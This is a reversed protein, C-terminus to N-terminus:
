KALLKVNESRREKIEKAQVETLKSNYRQEGRRRTGHTLEDASNEKPTKWSLHSPNVCGLHGNGCEHAAYLNGAHLAGHARKCVERHVYSTRGNIECYAYGNPKRAFPWILCEEGSFPIATEEFYRIAEGREARRKEVVPVVYIRDDAM